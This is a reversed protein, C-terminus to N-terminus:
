SQTLWQHENVLTLPLDTYFLFTAGKGPNSEIRIDGNHRKIIRRVIALGVGNGTYQEQSVLRNFMGFVRHQHQPAIGIGNDSVYYEGGGSSRRGERPRYGVEIRQRTDPSSYKIANSLLQRFVVSLQARDGRIAPLPRHVVVEAATGMQRNVEALSDHVLQEVPLENVLLTARGVRSLELIDAIFQNMRAANYQITQILEKGGEDMRTGYDELLIEAFGDIGRLPARLDHSVMYSFDEMEAYATKLQENVRRLHTYREMVVDRIFTQLETASRIQAPTWPLSYGHRSETVPVYHPEDAARQERPRSGYLIEEVRESRFWVMWETNGANLPLLLAGAALHRLERAAPYISELNNTAIYDDAGLHGQAWKFLDDVQEETPTLGLTVLQDEILVAAGETETLYDLLSPDDGGLAAVMNAASAIHERLKSRVVDASLLRVRLNELSRYAINQGTLTGILHAFTRQQYNLQAARTSHCFFLGWPRGDVTVAISLISTLGAEQLYERYAAYPTRGGLRYNVIDAVEQPIDDVKAYPRAVYSYHLVAEDAYIRYAEEPFDSLRFHLGLMSPLTGDSYENRVLGTGGEAFEYAIVRNYQLYTGLKRCVTDLIQKVDTADLLADTIDKLAVERDLHAAATANLRRYPEIELVIERETFFPIVQRQGWDVPGGPGIRQPLPVRRQRNRPLGRLVAPPFLTNGEQGIYKGADGGVIEDMNDSLARVELTDAALVVVHVHSQIQNDAPM